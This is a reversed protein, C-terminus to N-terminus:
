ELSGLAMNAQMTALDGSRAYAIQGDAGIVIWGGEPVPRAKEKLLRKQVRAGSGVLGAAYKGRPGKAREGRIKAERELDKLRQELMKPSAM